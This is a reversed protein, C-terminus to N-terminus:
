LEQELDQLFRKLVHARKEAEKRGGQTQMTEPLKLLKEYFHDVAFEKDNLERHKAFPDEACFLKTEMQGAIYFTRALGIAGLAEIRDADQVIKAESTKPKIGSSYSHAEICHHVSDLKEEPFNMALLIERSKQAAHQSSLSRIPSNKPYSVIDHFYCAAMIVLKDDRESSFQEALSWVRKFHSLDHSGDVSPYEMLYNEFQQKWDMLNM